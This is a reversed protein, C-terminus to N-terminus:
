DEGSHKGTQRVHKAIRSIRNNDVALIARLDDRKIGTRACELILLDQLVTLIAELRQVVPDGGLSKRAM